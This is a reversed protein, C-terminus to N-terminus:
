IGHGVDSWMKCSTLLQQQFCTAEHKSSVFIWADKFFVLVERKVKLRGGGTLKTEALGSKLM